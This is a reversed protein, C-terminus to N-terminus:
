CERLTELVIRLSGADFHEPVRVITGSCLVVEITVAAAARLASSVETFMPAAQVAARRAGVSAVPRGRRVQNAGVGLRRRWRYMTKGAIGEGEAFRSLPLGSREWRELVARMVKERAARRGGTAM